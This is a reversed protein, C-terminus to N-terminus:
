FQPEESITRSEVLAEPVAGKEHAERLKKMIQFVKETHNAFFKYFDPTGVDIGGYVRLTMDMALNAAHGLEIGLTSKPAPTWTPKAAFGSTVPGSTGTVKSIIKPTGKINRYVGTKDFDWLLQVADGIQIDELGKGKFAGYKNGEITINYPTRDTVTGKISEM